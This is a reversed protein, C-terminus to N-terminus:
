EGGRRSADILLPALRLSSSIVDARGDSYLALRVISEKTQWTVVRDPAMAISMEDGAFVAFRQAAESDAALPAGYRMHMGKEILGSPPRGSFITKTQALHNEFFAYYAPVAAGVVDDTFTLTRGEKSKPEGKKAIVEEQTAGWPVDKLIEESRYAAVDPATSTATAPAERPSGAETTACAAATLALAAIILTRMRAQVVLRTPDIRNEPDSHGRRIESCISVAQTFRGNSRCLQDLRAGHVTSRGM